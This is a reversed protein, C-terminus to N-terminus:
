ALPDSPRLHRLALRKCTRRRNLPLRIPPPTQHILRPGSVLLGPHLDPNHPPLSPSTPSSDPPIPEPYSIQIQFPGRISRPLEPQGSGRLARPAPSDETRTVQRGAVMGGVRTMSELNFPSSLSDSQLVSIEFALSRGPKRRASMSEFRLGRSRIPGSM